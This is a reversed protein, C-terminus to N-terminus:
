HPNHRSVIGSNGKRKAAKDNIIEGAITLFTGAVLWGGIAGVVEIPYAKYRYYVPGIYPPETQLDERLEFPKVTLYVAYAVSLILMIVGIVALGTGLSSLKPRGAGRKSTTMQAGMKEEGEDGWGNRLKEQTKEQAKQQAIQEKATNMMAGGISQLIKGFIMILILSAWQMWFRDWPLPKETLALVAAVAFGIAGSLVFCIGLVYVVTGAEQAPTPSLIELV